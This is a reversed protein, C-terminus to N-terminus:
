FFVVFLMWIDGVVNVVFLVIDDTNLGSTLKVLYNIHCVRINVRLVVKRYYVLLISLISSPNLQISSVKVIFHFWDSKISISFVITLIETEKARICQHFLIILSDQRTSMNKM